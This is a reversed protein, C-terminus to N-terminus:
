FKPERAIDITGLPLLLFSDHFTRGITILIRGLEISNRRSMNSERTCLQEGSVSVMTTM